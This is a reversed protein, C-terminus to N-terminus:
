LARRAAGFHNISVLEVRYLVSKNKITAHANYKVLPSCWVKISIEDNRMKILAGLLQTRPFVTAVEYYLAVFADTEATNEYKDQGPAPKDFISKDLFIARRQLCM